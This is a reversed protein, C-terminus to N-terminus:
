RRAPAEDPFYKFYAADDANPAGSGSAGQAPNPAPIRSSPTKGLHPKRALLDALDGRIAEVDVDGDNTAYKGLDLFAIADAPDAFGAAALAKVESQVTRSLLAEARKAHADAAEQARELDSKSAEVLRNYDALHPEAERLKTRYKAAESRAQSVEGMVANRADDDLSALLDALSKKEYPKPAAPAEEQPQTDGDLDDAAPTPAESEDDDYFETPDYDSM